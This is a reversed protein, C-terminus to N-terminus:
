ALSLGQKFQEIVLSQERDSLSSYMPLSLAGAYYTEAVPFQGESFGLRKYYPQTHVPIYHVNVLIGAARLSDFVIRRKEATGVHVVYLHFASRREAARFPLTVPLNKLAEDYGLAIETRREVFADLRKMQSRGLACQLDTIRYNYGLEVQQYYWGGHSDGQMQGPDRTIGHTRLLLLKKALDERNTLVMGGEGTTVIKVPHYSFVTIDSYECSGVNGGQYAAGVAHCADEVVAFGFKKSLAHIEAMDCPQGAFHVPVVVKPLKNQARAGVLKRELEVVSMNYTRPDIDVFDVSAGCYLACNASAVFTNPTTWVIDGPGVDLALMALHLAVTGNSVAFAHRAECYAATDKEFGEVNPGQTLWDSRLVDTVADIDAQDIDQKGYPITKM